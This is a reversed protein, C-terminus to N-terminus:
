AVGGDAWLANPHRRSHTRRSGNRSGGGRSFQPTPPSERETGTETGTGSVAVAGSSACTQRLTDTLSGPLSGAAQDAPAACGSRWAAAWASGKNGELYRGIEEVAERKLDCEPMEDLWKRWSTVVSPSEPENHKIAKPIWVVRAQWDARAMGQRELEGFARRFGRTAWKLAEALGAEGASFLGPIPCTHPGTLLYLWLYQGSPAPSSLRRFREDGYTAPDIKKYRM